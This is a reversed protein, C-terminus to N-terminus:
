SSSIRIFHYFKRGDLSFKCSAPLAPGSFIESLAPQLTLTGDASPSIATGTTTGQAFDAATIDQFCNSAPYPIAFSRLPGTSSNGSCILQFWRASISYTGPILGTLTISHTTVLAPDNSNLNLNTHVTGYQVASTAAEDTTWSIIATGNSNPSISINSIVPATNDAPYNGCDIALDYLM